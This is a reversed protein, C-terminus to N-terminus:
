WPLKYSYLPLNVPTEQVAPLNKVLQSEKGGPFGKLASLLGWLEEAKYCLKLFVHLLFLFLIVLLVGCNNYHIEVDRKFYKVSCASLFDTFILLIQVASDLLKLM